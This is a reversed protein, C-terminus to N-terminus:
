EGNEVIRQFSFSDLNSISIDRLRKARSLGVYITAPEFSIASTFDLHMKESITQGQLRHLRTWFACEFPLVKKSSMKTEGTSDVVADKIKLVTLDKEQGDRDMVVRATWKKKVDLLFYPKEIGDVSINIESPPTNCDIGVLRGFQGNLVIPRADQWVNHTIQIRCGPVLPVAGGKPFANPFNRGDGVVYRPGDSEHVRQWNRERCVNKTLAVGLFDGRPLRRLHYNLMGAAYAPLPTRSSTAERVEDLFMAFHEDDDDNIQRHQVQLEITEFHMQHWLVHTNVPDNGVPALQAFDGSTVIQIGGFPLSNRCVKQLADSLMVFNSASWQGIEELIIRPANRCTAPALPRQSKLQGTYDLWPQHQLFLDVTMALPNKGALVQMTLTKGCGAKGRVSFHQPTSTIREICARQQPDLEVDVAHGTYDAVAIGTQALVITRPSLALAQAKPTPASM